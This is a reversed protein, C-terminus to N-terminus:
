LRLHGIQIQKRKAFLRAVSGPSPSVSLFLISSLEPKTTMHQRTISLHDMNTDYHISRRFGNSWIHVRCLIIQCCIVAFGFQRRKNELCQQEANVNNLTHINNCLHNNCGM